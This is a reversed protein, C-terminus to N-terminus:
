SDRIIEVSPLRYLSSNIELDARKAADPNIEMKIRNQVVILNIVAGQKALGPAQAISLVPQGHTKAFAAKQDATQAIVLIHCARYADVTAFREIVVKRGPLRKALEQSLHNVGGQEFPDEGLV